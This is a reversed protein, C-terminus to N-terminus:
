QTQSGRAAAIFAQWAARWPLSPERALARVAGEGGLVLEASAKM